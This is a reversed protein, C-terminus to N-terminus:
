VQSSIHLEAFTFQPHDSPLKFIEEMEVPEVMAM